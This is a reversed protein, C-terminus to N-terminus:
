FFRKTFRNTHFKGVKTWKKTRNVKSWKETEQKSFDYVKNNFYFVRDLKTSRTNSVYHQLVEEGLGTSIYHQLATHVQLISHHSKKTVKSLKEQVLTVLDHNIDM